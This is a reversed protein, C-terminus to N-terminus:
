VHGPQCVTDTITKLPRQSWNHMKGFFCFCSSFCQLRVCMCSFSSLLFGRILKKLKAFIGYIELFFLSYHFFVCRFAVRFSVLRCSVVRSSVISFSVLFFFALRSFFLFRWSYLPSVDICLSLLILYLVFTSCTFACFFLTLFVLSFFLVFCNLWVPGFSFFVLLFVYVSCVGGCWTATLEDAAANFRIWRWFSNGSIFASLICLFTRMVMMVMEDGQKNLLNSAENLISHVPVAPAQGAMDAMSTDRSAAGPCIVQTSENWENYKNPLRLFRLSLTLSRSHPYEFKYATSARLGKVVRARSFLGKNEDPCHRIAFREAKRALPFSCMGDHVRTQPPLM